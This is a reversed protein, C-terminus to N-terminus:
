PIFLRRTGRCQDVDVIIEILRTACRRRYETEAVRDKGSITVVPLSEATSEQRMTVELSDEDEANRNATLLLMERRQAFRWIERDRSGDPIGAERLTLFQVEVLDLWGDKALDARILLAQGVIDNDVLLTM